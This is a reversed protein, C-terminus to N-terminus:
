IMQADLAALTVVGQRHHYRAADVLARLPQGDDYIAFGLHTVGTLKRAYVGVKGHPVWDAWDGFASVVVHNGLEAEHAAINRLVHSDRGAVAQGTFAAYADPRYSRTTDHALQMLTDVLPVCAARWEAEFGLYALAWDVSDDYAPNANALVVPMACQREDSLLLGGQGATTVRWIGPLPQESTEVAGWISSTPRPTPLFTM